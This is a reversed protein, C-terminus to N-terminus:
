QQKQQKQYEEKFRDLYKSVKISFSAKMFTDPSRGLIPFQAATLQKSNSNLIAMMGEFSKTLLQQESSKLLLIGVRFVIKWGEFLFVDWVRLLHEFPLSYAFVTNFWHSCFMIPYVNEQDFHTGIRPCEQKILREFQFFYQQLLPFGDTYLGEMPPHFRRKLLAVLTWFADEECMYLLLLGAIFGMGQVYGVQRDYVSYAKLVNFLSRQGPGQRQQFYVHSPYTRNLDRVIELEIQEMSSEYLMLQHYVGEHQLLLSRGGSLLQWVLGRLADPIGKRIRKKVKNKHRQLYMSWDVGGAGVMRRWKKLRNREKINITPRRPLSYGPNDTTIIFGYRDVEVPDPPPGVARPYSVAEQGAPVPIDGSNLPNLMMSDDSDISSESTAVSTSRLIFNSGDTQNKRGRNGGGSAAMSSSSSFNSDLWTVWGVDGMGEANPPQGAAPSNVSSQPGLEAQASGPTSEGASPHVTWPREPAQRVPLPDTTQEEELEQGEDGEGAEAEVEARVLSEELLTSESSGEQHVYVEVRALGQGRTQGEDLSLPSSPDLDDAGPRELGEMEDLPYEEGPPDRWSDRENEGPPRWPHTQWRHSQKYKERLSSPLPFFKRTDPLSRRDRERPHPLPPPELERPWTPSRKPLPPKAASAPPRIRGEPDLDSIQRQSSRVESGEQERNGESSPESAEEEAAAAVASGAAAVADATNTKAWPRLFTM